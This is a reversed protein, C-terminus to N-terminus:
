RMREAIQAFVATARQQHTEARQYAAEANARFTLSPAGSKAADDVRERWKRGESSAQTAAHQSKRWSELQEALWRNRAISSAPIPAPQQGVARRQGKARRVHSTVHVVGAAVFADDLPAGRQDLQGHDLYGLNSM